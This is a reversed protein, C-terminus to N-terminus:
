NVNRFKTIAIIWKPLPQWDVTLPIVKNVRHFLQPQWSSLFRIPRSGTAFSFLLSDSQLGSSLILTNGLRRKNGTKAHASLESAARGDKVTIGLCRLLTNSAPCKLLAVQLQHLSPAFAPQSHKIQSSTLASPKNTNFHDNNLGASYSRSFGM